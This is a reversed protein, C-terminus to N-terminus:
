RLEQLLRDIKRTEAELNSGITWWDMSINRAIVEDVSNGMEKRLPEPLTTNQNMPWVLSMQAFGAQYLPEIVANMLRKAAGPDRAGKPLVLLYPLILGGEDPIRMAVATNGNRRMMAIENAYFAAAVVEGRAIQAELSAMSTYVNLAQPVLKRLWDYGPQLNQENGGALKAYLQIDYAALFNPRTISIQGKWRSDLLNKWSAFDSPKALETNYAIGFLGFYVPMGMLRGDPTRPWLKEPVNRIGSLDDPVLLEILNKRILGPVSYAAVLALNFPPKGEAQAISAAPLASEFVDAKLGSERTFRETVISRWAQSGLGAYTAIIIRAQEQARAPALGLVPSAAAAALLHRRTLHVHAEEEV